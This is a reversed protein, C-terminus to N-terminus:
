NELFTECIFPLHSMYTKVKEELRRDNIDVFWDQPGRSDVIDSNKPQSFLFLRQRWGMREWVELRYSDSPVGSVSRNAKMKGDLSNFGFRKVFLAVRAVFQDFDQNFDQAKLTKTSPEFVHNILNKYYAISRITFENQRTSSSVPIASGVTSVTQNPLLIREYFDDPEDSHTPSIVPSDEYASLEISGGNMNLVVTDRSSNILDLIEDSLEVVFVNDKLRVLRNTQTISM